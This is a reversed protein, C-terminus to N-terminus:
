AKVKQRLDRVEGELDAMRKDLERSDVRAIEEHLYDSMVCRM